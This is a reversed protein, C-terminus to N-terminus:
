SFIDGLEVIEEDAVEKKIRRIMRKEDKLKKEEPTETDVQIYRQASLTEGTPLVMGDVCGIFYDLGDQSNFTLFAIEDSVLGAGIPHFDFFQGALRIGTRIRFPLQGETKVTAIFDESTSHFIKSRYGRSISDCVQRFKLKDQNSEDLLAHALACTAVADDGANDAAGDNRHKRGPKVDKWCYSFMQLLCKLSPIVGISSTIDTAIDRLDIWASFFPIAAPFYTSLYTWEAAMEFGILLLKKDKPLNQLFEVVSAELDEIDLYKEEGFRHGRRVPMGKFRGLRLIQSGLQKSTNINITLGEMQNDEYFHHLRLRHKRVPPTCSPCSYRSKLTKTFALGVQHLVRDRESTIAVHETDLALFYSDELIDQFGKLTTIRNNFLHRSAQARELQRYRIM